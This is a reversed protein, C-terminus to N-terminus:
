GTSHMTACYTQFYKFYARVDSTLGSIFGTIETWHTADSQRSPGVDSFFVLLWHQQYHM